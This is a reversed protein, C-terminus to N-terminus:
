GNKEKTRNKLKEDPGHPFGSIIVNNYSINDITLLRQCEELMAM